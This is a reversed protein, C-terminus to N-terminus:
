KHDNIKERTKDISDTTEKKDKFVQSPSRFVGFERNVKQSQSQSPCPTGKVELGALVQEGGFNNKRNEPFRIKEDSQHGLREGKRDM